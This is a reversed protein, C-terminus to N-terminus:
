VTSLNSIFQLTQEYLDMGHDDSTACPDVTRKLDAIDGDSFRLTTQPVEVHERDITPVPGELDIGYVDDVEQFFDLGQLNSNQLLIAGATFLQLPSKHQATRIPHNNWSSTFEKLTKNIRPLYVYQLAWLHREDLHNLLGHHEMFYFLKYYLVTASKHMDRWLREIRQNHTSSGTIMSRREAGRTQLMHRAVDINELGM